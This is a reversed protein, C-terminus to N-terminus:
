ENAVRSPVGVVTADPAVDRLVVSNALVVAGRGVTVRGLVSVGPGLDVGDEITPLADPGTEHARLPGFTTGHRIRVDAGIARARLLMGGGDHHLRVRRGLEVTTPLNIGWLWDVGVSLARAGLGLARRLPTPELAHARSALRHAFVAWFGPDLPDNGCTAFDELVLEGLSLAWPPDDIAAPAARGPAPARGARLLERFSARLFDRLLRPPLAGRQRLAARKALFILHGLVFAADAIAAYAGPHHKLFYRHRSDFWYDPLRRGEGLGTSVSGIHTIPADAVFYARFGAKRLERAFDIEEYYLFFGEDFFVGRDFVARRIFMSTGPLWDVELDATPVPLAVISERLLRSVVSFRANQEIESLISPFRFAAGQTVGEPDHVRSGALGAEPHSEMFALLRAVSGPDPTADTNIVYFYDPPDPAAMAERVALNIGYGYGGNRPAALVAVRPGWAQAQAARSLRDFSGDRSDNDVVFVRHDGLAQLEALLAAVARATMEATRYNVFIAAVKV